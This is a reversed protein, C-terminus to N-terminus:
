AKYFLKNKYKKQIQENITINKNLLKHIVNTIKIDFRFLHITFNKVMCRKELSYIIILDSAEVAVAPIVEVRHVV